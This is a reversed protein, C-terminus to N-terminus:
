EANELERDHAREEIERQEITLGNFWELADVPTAERDLEFDELHASEPADGGSHSQGRTAAVKYSWKWVLEDERGFTEEM